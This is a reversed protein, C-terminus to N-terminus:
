LICINRLDTLMIFFKNSKNNLRDQSKLSYSRTTLQTQISLVSSPSIYSIPSLSLLSHLSLGLLLSLSPLPSLRLSIPLSVSFPQAFPFSLPYPLPSLPFFKIVYDKFQKAWTYTKDRIATEGRKCSTSSSADVIYMSDSYVKVGIYDDNMWTYTIRTSM